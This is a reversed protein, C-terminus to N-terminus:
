TSSSPWSSPWTAFRPSGYRPAHTWSRSDEYEDPTPDIEFGQAQVDGSVARVGIGSVFGPRRYRELEVGGVARARAIGDARWGMDSMRTIVKKSPPLRVPTTTHGVHAAITGV